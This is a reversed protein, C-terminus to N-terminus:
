PELEWLKRLRARARSLRTRFTAASCGAVEAAEENNLEELGSLAITEQDELSLLSLATNLRKLLQAEHVVDTTPAPDPANMVHETNASDIVRERKEIATIAVNRAIRFLWTSYQAKHEDYQERARWARLFTEQALEEAMSQDFGLRGLYAFLPGQFRNVRVEFQKLENAASDAFTPLRISM